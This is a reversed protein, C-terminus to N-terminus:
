PLAVRNEPRLLWADMVARAMPSATAGGHGGNEVMVAVAIQPQQAPAFAVFLAHDRLHEPIADEDYKEDRGLSFVQATGTKGAIRYKAGRAIRNATGQRTHVVDEMGKIVPQWLRDPLVIPKLTPQPPEGGELLLHPRIPKGHNALMATMQALQLPTTMFFGQGIGINLTEGPYWPQNRASRKWERSPLLGSPESPLDIGTAQGLGFQELFDHIRDIGLRNSLEYYYVDCSEVISKNLDTPGHGQKKWDRFVLSSNPLQYKGHCDIKEHEDIAGRALGALGMAPKITSGPPYQGRLARDFLPRTPDDRLAAYEKQPIGLVFQSPDFSPKSVLALIEGNNPDLAVVAGKLDGLAESAISQLRSDLTLHLDTGTRSPTRELEDLVRGVVNAEVRSEGPFGHLLEEYEREIGTKGTFQSGRYRGEDLSKLDDENIRGTYGIVHATLAGLPYNRSLIAEVMVGPFRYRQSEFRAVEEDSLHYRLTAPLFSRQRKRQKHFRQLEEDSISLVSRLNELTSELNEVQEPVIVLSLTTQNEALVVGNRDLIRGRAPPLPRVQMRNDNSQTIYHNYEIVQLLTMRGGLVLILLAAFILAFFARRRFLRAESHYDKLTSRLAM